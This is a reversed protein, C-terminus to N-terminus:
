ISFLNSFKNGDKQLSLILGYEDQKNSSGLESVLDQHISTIEDINLIENYYKYKAMFITAETSGFTIDHSDLTTAENDLVSADYYESYMLRGDKYTEIVNKSIVYTIHIWKQIPIEMATTTNPAGGDTTTISYYITPKSTADLTITESNTDDGRTLITNTNINPESPAHKFYIFFDHTFAPKSSNSSAVKKTSSNKLDKIDSLGKTNSSM